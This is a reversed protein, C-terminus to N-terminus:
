FAPASGTAGRPHKTTRVAPSSGAAGAKARRREELQAVNAFPGGQLFRVETLPTFVRHGVVLGLATNQPPQLHRVEVPGNVGDGAELPSLVGIKRAEKSKDNQHVPAPDFRRRM